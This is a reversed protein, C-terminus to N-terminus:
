CVRRPLTFVCAQAPNVSMQAYVSMQSPNVRAEKYRMRAWECSTAHHEAMSSPLENEIKWRVDYERRLEEDGLVEYRCWALNGICTL